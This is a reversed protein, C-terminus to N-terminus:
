KDKIQDLIEIILTEKLTFKQFLICENMKINFFKNKFNKCVLVVDKNMYEINTLVLGNNLKMNDTHNLNFWRLYRGVVLEDIEDVYKYENLVKLYHKIEKSNFEMKKLIEFKYKHINDSNYQHLKDEDMEDLINQLEQEM